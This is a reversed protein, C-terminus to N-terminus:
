RKKVYEGSNERRLEDRIEDKLDKEM